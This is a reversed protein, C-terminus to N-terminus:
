CRIPITSYRILINHTVMIKDREWEDRDLIFKDNREVCQINTPEGECVFSSQLGLARSLLRITGLVPLPVSGCALVLPEDKM